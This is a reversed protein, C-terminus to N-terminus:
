MGEYPGLEQLIFHFDRLWTGPTGPHDAGAGTMEDVQLVDQWLGCKRGHRVRM